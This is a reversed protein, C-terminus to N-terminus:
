FPASSMKDNVLPGYILSTVKREQAEPSLPEPPILQKLCGNPHPGYYYYWRRSCGFYAHGDKENLILTGSDRDDFALGRETQAKAHALIWLRATSLPSLALMLWLLKSIGKWALLLSLSCFIRWEMGASLFFFFFCASIFNFWDNETYKWSRQNLSGEVFAEFINLVSALQHFEWPSCHHLGAKQRWSKCYVEAFSYIVSLVDTNHSRLICM